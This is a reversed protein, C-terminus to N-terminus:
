RVIAKAKGMQVKATIAPAMQASCAQPRYQAHSGLSTQAKMVQTTKAPYRWARAVPGAPDLADQPADKACSALLLAAGTGLAALRRGGAGKM